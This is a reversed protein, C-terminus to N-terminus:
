KLAAVAEVVAASGRPLTRVGVATRSHAGRSGFVAVMLDSAGNVAQPINIFDDTVQVFGTVKIIREVRDLDGDCATRLQALLNLACLKTAEQAEELGFERGVVGLFRPEGNWMTSQGSLFVLSGTVAFPVINGAPPSPRPLELKLELLRKEASHDM